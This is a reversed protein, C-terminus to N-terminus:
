SQPRPVSAAKRGGGHFGVADGLGVEGNRAEGVAAHLHAAGPIGARRDGGLVFAGGAGGDVSREGGADIEEIVGVDAAGAFGLLHESAKQAGRGAEAFADDELRLDADAKGVVGERAALGRPVVEAVFVEGTGRFANKAAEAHLVEIQEQEMTGVREDFRGLDGAGEVVELAGAFDPVEAYAVVRGRLDFQEALVEPLREDDVLELEAEGLGRQDDFADAGVLGAGGRARTQCGANEIIAALVPHEHLRPRREAVPFKELRGGGAFRRAGEERKDGFEGAGFRGRGLGDEEGPDQAVGGAHLGDDAGGSRVANAGADRGVIDLEAAFFPIGEEGGRASGLHGSPSREPHSARDCVDGRVGGGRGPRRGRAGSLMARRFPVGCVRDASPLWMRRHKFPGEDEEDNCEDGASEAERRDGAGRDGDRLCEEKDEERQHHEEEEGAEEDALLRELLTFQGRRVGRGM